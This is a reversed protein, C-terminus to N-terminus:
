YIHEYNWTHIYVIIEHHGSTFKNSKHMIFTFESIRLYLLLFSIEGFYPLFNYREKRQNKGSTQKKNRTMDTKNESSSASVVKEENVKSYDTSCQANNYSSEEDLIVEAYEKARQSQATFDRKRCKAGSQGSGQCKIGQGYLELCRELRLVIM